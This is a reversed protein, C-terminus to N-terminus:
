WLSSPGLAQVFNACLQLNQAVFGYVLFIQPIIEINTLHQGLEPDVRPLYQEFIRRSRLLMPTDSQAGSGGRKESEGTAYFPKANQMILGFLTFADHEIHEADLMDLLKRDGAEATDISAPDVADREVVWLVPALIEHMGQRYGVDSNLKCFIFLIDVLIRQTSPQRFYLNEPM